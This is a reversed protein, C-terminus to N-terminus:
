MEDVDSFISGGSSLFDALAKNEEINPVTKSKNQSVKKETKTYSSTNQVKTIAVSTDNSYEPIERKIENKRTVTIPASEKNYTQTSQEKEQINNNMIDHTIVIPKSFPETQEEQPENQEKKKNLITVLTNSKKNKRFSFANLIKDPNYNQDIEIKEDEKLEIIRSPENDYDFDEDVIGDEILRWFPYHQIPLVEEISKAYPHDTKWYFTKLKKVKRQSVKVYVEDEGLSAVEGPTVTQRKGLGETIDEEIHANLWQTKDKKYRRNIVTVTEEGCLNSFWNMTDEHNTKLMLYYDCNNLITTYTKGPHNKLLQNIDQVIIYTIILRSRVTSLKEEFDPIKLAPYEDLVMHVPIPLEGSSRMDAYRVLEQYLITFFLSLIPSMTKDQDNFSVFYLCKKRGPNIVDISGKTESLIKYLMPSNFLKLKIALGQIVQKKVKEEGSQFIKFPAKALHEDPLMEFDNEMEELNHNTVYTFLQPLHKEDEQYDNGVNIRLIIAQLLNLPGETWFDFIDGGGLQTKIIANAIVQAKDPDDGVYQMANWPDSNKLFMPNLQLLRVEYGLKKALESCYKFLESKPDTVIASEGKRLIQFIAPIVFTASKGASPGAVMFVNRNLKLLPYKQTVINNPNDPDKGFIIGKNDKLPAVNFTKLMEEKTMEGSTGYTGKKSREYNRDQASTYTSSYKQIIRFIFIQVALFIIFAIGIGYKLFALIINYLDINYSHGSLNLLLLCMYGTSFISFMITFVFEAYFAIRNNTYINTFTTVVEGFISEELKKRLWNKITKLFNM